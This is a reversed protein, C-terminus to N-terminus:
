GDGSSWGLWEEEGGRGMRAMWGDGVWGHFFFSSCSVDRGRRM